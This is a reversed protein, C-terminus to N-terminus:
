WLVVQLHWIMAIHQNATINNGITKSCIKQSKTEKMILQFMTDVIYIMHQESAIYSEQSYM